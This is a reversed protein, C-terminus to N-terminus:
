WPQGSFCSNVVIIKVRNIPALKARGLQRQPALTTTQPQRAVQFWPRRALTLPRVTFRKRGRRRLVLGRGQTLM